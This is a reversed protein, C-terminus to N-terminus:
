PYYKWFSPEINTGHLTCDTCEPTSATYGLPKPAGPPQIPAIPILPYTAGRKYNIFENVQNEPIKSNPPYYIYLCSTLECDPPANYNSAWHPLQYITIFLRQSTTSGVSIYGIVPESPNTTSHINGSIQTPEADFISGLQETNKKLNTWFTYADGTLAYQHVFISYESAIKPSSSSISTIPNGVIVDKALKASSGLVIVSSTDSQWCTYIQQSATRTLVTDGNSIYGSNFPPHIIWTETYDWRFYKAANTADHTASNINVSNSTTTFYISDIPPSNLVPVFDSYYQKNDATKISLRYTHSNDLNLGASTYNGNTTETLPYQAHQDSEVFVVAQSVPNTVVADSLKVTKSLKIITSDSGSNIVGEVVLYSGSSAIVAPTFPKKCCLLSFLLLYCVKPPKIM